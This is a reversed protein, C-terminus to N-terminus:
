PREELRRRIVQWDERLDRWLHPGAWRLRRRALLLLVGAAALMALLIVATALWAPLVQALLLVLMAVLLPLMLLAVVLAILGLAAGVAMRRLADRTEQRAQMLRARLLAVINQILRRVRPGGGDTGESGLSM